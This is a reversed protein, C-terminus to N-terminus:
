RALQRQPAAFDGALRATAPKASGVGACEIGGVSTGQWWAGHQVAAFAAGKSKTAAVAIVNSLQQWSMLLFQLCGVVAPKGPIAHDKRRTLCKVLFWIGDM